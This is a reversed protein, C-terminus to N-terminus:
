YKPRDKINIIFIILQLLVYYIKKIKRALQSLFVVSLNIGRRRFM